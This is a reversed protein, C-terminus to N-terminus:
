RRETRPQQALEPLCRSGLSRRSTRLQEIPRLQCREDHRGARAVHRAHQASAHICRTRCDLEGNRGPHLAAHHRLVCPEYTDLTDDSDLTGHIGAPIHCHWRARAVPHGHHWAPVHQLQLSSVLVVHPLRRLRRSIGLLRVCGHWTGCDNSICSRKRRFPFGLFASPQVSRFKLM